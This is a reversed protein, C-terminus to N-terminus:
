IGAADWRTREISKSLGSDTRTKGVARSATGAPRNRTEAATRITGGASVTRMKEQDQVIESNERVYGQVQESIRMKQTELEQLQYELDTCDTLLELMVQCNELIAKRKQLLEQVAAQFRQQIVSEQLHPTQCKCVGQFKHNCQWIVQRYKSNSHWVKAGFFNGFDGCVLRAAFVSKGNYQRRLNQRRLLEAQVLEFEEPVIIAPHSEEIYYQPVEGENVKSKKTLFDVTFRKQLLASGKYKENILISKVTSSCWQEKGAPTPVGQETLTRAIGTPTKGEMFWRYINRVIEAEEPVIEPLGDAGKRYGLFHKYPLSVKGDAMRKRQGWTVNESISRSEEQALSSMITILLEGKSDLTYINEKEFFVEVGKEKLKRVTTLSDVTNRAFRSVSKTVILDIKGDLADAVMRNFGDRHKTNLASIGEDTYVAVFEWDAREQIYKTYRDVQAAYSTQQEESDTSVRAYAAVRRKQVKTEPLHTIPHFKAPIKLVTAM